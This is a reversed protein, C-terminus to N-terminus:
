DVGCWGYRPTVGLSRAVKALFMPRTTIVDPVWGQSHGQSRVRARPNLQNLIDIFLDCGPSPRDSM